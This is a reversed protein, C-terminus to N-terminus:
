GEERGGERRVPSNYLLESYKNLQLLVLLILQITLFSLAPTWSLLLIITMNEINNKKSMILVIM